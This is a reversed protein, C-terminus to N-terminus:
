FWRGIEWSDLDCLYAVRSAKGSICKPAMAASVKACRMTALLTLKTIVTSDSMALNAVAEFDM